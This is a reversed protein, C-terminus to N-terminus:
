QLFDRKRTPTRAEARATASDYGNTHFTANGRQPGRRRARRQPIMATMALAEKCRPKGHHSLPARPPPDPRGESVDAAPARTKSIQTRLFSSLQVSKSLFPGPARTKSRRRAGRECEPAAFHRFHTVTTTKKRQLFRPGLWIKIFIRLELVPRELVSGYVQTPWKKTFKGVAPKPRRRRNRPVDKREPKRSESAYFGRRNRM